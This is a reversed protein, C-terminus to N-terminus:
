FLNKTTFFGSNQQSESIRGSPYLLRVTVLEKYDKFNEISLIMAFSTILQDADDLYSSVQYCKGVYGSFREHIQSM